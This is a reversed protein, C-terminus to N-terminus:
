HVKLYKSLKDLSIEILLVPLKINWSKLTEPHVEGIYGISENNVLINGTRGSILLDNEYDKLSAQVGLQNFLSEIIQKGQTFQGPTLAIALKKEESVLNQNKKFVQGIEFINQPYENDKNDALIRLLCSSLNQRLHKYETKSNELEIPKEKLKKTEEEKILHFSSVELLGLGTLISSLVNEIKKSELQKSISPIQPVIPILREYGYAIAVDEIVDIEHIIDTRWAPFTVQGKKYNYGMKPLLKSIEKEDINLGLIKNVNELSIKQTKSELLPSKITKGSYDLNMQYIKGGMEALSTVVIALAQSVVEYSFGSCEIFVEKTKETVRGTLESNIIPPMSLIQKKSDIFVPYKKAEQLLHAYTKGVPHKELIEKGNMEKEAELPLFKIEEPLMAAYKIPLSIKEMPYIGIACRKRNRGFTSHLKEQLDIIQKISQSDLDLNKVIACATYPRVEKVSNDIIVKYNREAPKISYETLGQDKGLFAKLTRVIGQLSLLDPRNPFVEIMVENGHIELPIGLMSIKEVNEPTLKIHREFEQRTFTLNAM